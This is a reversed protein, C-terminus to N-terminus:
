AGRLRAGSRLSLAIDAKLTQVAVGYVKDLVLVVGSVGSRGLNRTCVLTPKLVLKAYVLPTRLIKAM